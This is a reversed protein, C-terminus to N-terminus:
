RASLWFAAQEAMAAAERGLLPGVHSPSSCRLLDAGWERALAQSLSPPVDSDRESVMFLVPRDAIPIVTASAADRLVTGSEDRWRRFAFLRAAEDADPMARQTSAFRAQGRWPVTGPWDRRLAQSGPAPPLPNVLVLADAQTACQLALLGGLSAGILARPSPLAALAENVQSRYDALATAGLGAEVPRLDVTQAHLGRARLVECWVRWEWAGGGAGHILLAHGIRRSRCATGDPDAREAGNRAAEGCGSGGGVSM